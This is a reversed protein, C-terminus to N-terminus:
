RRTVGPRGAEEQGTGERDGAAAKEAADAAFHWSAALAVEPEEVMWAVPLAVAGREALIHTALRKRQRGSLKAAAVVQATDRPYFRVAPGNVTGGVVVDAWILESWAPTLGLHAIEVGNKSLVALPTPGVPRHREPLWQGLAVAAVLFGLWPLVDPWPSPLLVVTAVVLAASALQWAIASLAFRGRRRITVPDPPVPLVGHRLLERLSSAEVAAARREM